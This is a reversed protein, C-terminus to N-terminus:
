ERMEQETADKDAQKELMMLMRRAFKAARTEPYENIVASLYEHKAERSLERTAATLSTEAYGSNPFQKVFESGRYLREFATEGYVSSKPYREVVERFHWTKAGSEFAEVLMQCVEREQGTPEVIEFGIEQSLADDYRGRVSYKGPPILGFWFHIRSSAFLYVLDYCGYYQENPDMLFGDGRVYDWMPGTYALKKGLSDRVEIHFSEFCPPAMGWSRVTDSSINTLVADLWIPERLLYTQKSLSIELELKQDAALGVAPMLQALLLLSTLATNRTFIMM